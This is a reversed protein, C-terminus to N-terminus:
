SMDDRRIGLRRLIGAGTHDSGTWAEAIKGGAIRYVSIGTAPGARKEGSAEDCGGSISCMGRGVVWCAVVLNGEALLSLMTFHVRPYAARYSSVYLKVAQLGSIAGGCGEVSFGRAVLDDAAHLNGKNWVEEFYRRVIAINDQKNLVLDELLRYAREPEDISGPEYHSRHPVKSIISHCPESSFHSAM